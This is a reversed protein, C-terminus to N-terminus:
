SLEYFSEEGLHPVTAIMLEELTSGEVSYLEIWDDISGLYCFREAVYSRKNKDFLSFRLNSSFNSGFLGNPTWISIVNKKIDVKVPYLKCYKKLLKEVLIIEDQNIVKEQILRCFVQGLPNEYIEYGEPVKALANDGKQNCTYSTKGTKTTRSHIFYTQKKYNIYNYSM